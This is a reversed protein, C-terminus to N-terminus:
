TISYYQLTMYQVTSNWSVADLFQMSGLEEVSLESGVRQAGGLVRDVESAAEKQVYPNAALFHLACAVTTATTGSGAGILNFLAATIDEDTLPDKTGKVCARCLVTTYLLVYYDSVTARCLVTVHGCATIDEDTLPQKTGKVCARSLM